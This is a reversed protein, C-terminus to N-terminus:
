HLLIASISDQPNAAPTLARNDRTMSGDKPTSIDPCSPKGTLQESRIPYPNVTCGATRDHAHKVDHDTLATGTRPHGM